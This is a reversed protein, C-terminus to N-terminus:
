NTRSLYGDLGHPVLRGVQRAVSSIDKMPTEDLLWGQVVGIIGGAYFDAITDLQRANFNQNFQFLIRDSILRSVLSKLLSLCQIGAQGTFAARMLIRDKECEELLNRMSIEVFEERGIEANQIFSETKVWSKEFMSEIRSLLISQKSDFNSYFTQRSVGATKTLEGITIEDITQKQLHHALAVQLKEQSRRKRLDM